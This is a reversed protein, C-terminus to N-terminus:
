KSFTTNACQILQSSDRLDFVPIEFDPIKWQGDEIVVENSESITQIYGQAEPLYENMNDRFTGIEEKFVVQMLTDESQLIQLGTGSYEKEEYTATYNAEFFENIMEMLGDRIEFVAELESYFGTIVSYHGQDPMDFDLLPVTVAQYASGVKQLEGCIDLGKCTEDVVQPISNEM